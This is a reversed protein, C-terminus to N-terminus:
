GQDIVVGQILRDVNLLTILHDNWPFKGEIHQQPASITSETLPLFQSEPAEIIDVMEDVLLGAVIDQSEVLIIRSQETIQSSGLQLFQKLDMVAQIDGRVGIVGVIFEPTCPVRTIKKVKLIERVSAIRIGYFEGNLSVVVIQFYSEEIEPKEAAKLKQLLELKSLTPEIEEPTHPQTMREEMMTIEKCAFM